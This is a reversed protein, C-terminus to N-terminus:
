DCFTITLDVDNVQCARQVTTDDPKFFASPCNASNCDQGVGDCGNTYVFGTTVSFEHPPILSIDTSSGSGPSTPNILTLEVTTCHEGNFDCSGTQLYAIASVIPGNQTFDKGSSVIQGGVILTSTGNGCRNDFHVTHQEANVAAVVAVLLLLTKFM